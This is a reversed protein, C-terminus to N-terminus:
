LTYGQQTGTSFLSTLQDLEESREPAKRLSTLFSASGEMVKLYSRYDWGLSGDNAKTQDSARKFRANQIERRFDHISFPPSRQSAVLHKRCRLLHSCNRSLNFLQGFSRRLCHASCEILIVQSQNKDLCFRQSLIHSLALRHHSTNM